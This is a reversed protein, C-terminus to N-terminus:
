ADFAPVRPARPREQPARRGEGGVGFMNALGGVMGPVDFGGINLGARPNPIGEVGAEADHDDRPMGHGTLLSTLAHQIKGRMGEGLAVGVADVAYAIFMFLFCQVGALFIIKTYPSHGEGLGFGGREGLDDLLEEYLAMSKMQNVTFGSLKLGFWQTGCYEVVMWFMVLILKYQNATSKNKVLSLYRYYHIHITELEVDERFDPIAIDPYTQRLLGLKVRFDARFMEQRRRPM